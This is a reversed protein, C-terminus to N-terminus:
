RQQQYIHAWELHEVIKQLLKLPKMLVRRKFYKETFYYYKYNIVIVQGLKHLCMEIFNKRM